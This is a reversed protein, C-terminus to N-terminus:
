AAEGDVIQAVMRARRDLVRAMKEDYSGAIVISTAHVRGEQGGRDARSIIQDLQGPTWPEEAIFVRRAIQLGDLGIGGAQQQVVIARCEPRNIFRQKDAERKRSAVGGRYLAPAFGAEDLAKFIANGVDTHQYFVICKEGPLGRMESVVYEAVEKAKSLGLERRLEMVGPQAALERVAFAAADDGEDALRELLREIADSLGATVTVKRPPLRLRDFLPEKRNKFVDRKRVRSMFPKLLEHLQDADRAGTVRFGYPTEYGQCWRYIWQKRNQVNGDELAKPYLRSVMVWLDSPDLMVPTGTLCWVRDARRYLCAPTSKRAGFIAKTWKTSPTKCYHSEDLVLVDWKLLMASRWVDPAIVAHYSVIVVQASPDVAMKRNEILQARFGFREANFLWQYRVNAPVIFLARGHRAKDRSLAKLASLAGVTKGTGPEWAALHHGALFYPLYKTQHDWLVVNEM